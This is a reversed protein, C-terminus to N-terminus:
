ARSSAKDDVVPLKRIRHKALIREAEDLGNSRRRSWATKTM